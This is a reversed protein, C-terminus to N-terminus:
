RNGSVSCKKWFYNKFVANDKWFPKEITFTVTENVAFFIILPDKLFVWFKAVICDISLTELVSNSKEIEKIYQGSIKKVTVIDM